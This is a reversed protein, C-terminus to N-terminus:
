LLGSHAAMYWYFTYKITMVSPEYNNYTGWKKKIITFLQDALTILVHKYLESWSLSDKSQVLWTSM